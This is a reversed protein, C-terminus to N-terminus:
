CGLKNYLIRSFCIHCVPVLSLGAIGVGSKLCDRLPNSPNLRIQSGEIRLRSNPHKLVINSCVIYILKVIILQDSQAFYLDSLERLYKCSTYLWYCSIFFHLNVIIDILVCGVDFKTLAFSENITSSFFVKEIFFGLQNLRGKNSDKKLAIKEYKLVFDQVQTHAKKVFYYHKFCNLKFAM